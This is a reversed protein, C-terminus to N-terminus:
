YGLKTSTATQFQRFRLGEIAHSARIKGKEERYEAAWRGSPAKSKRLRTGCTHMRFACEDYNAGNNKGVERSTNHRQEDYFYSHKILSLAGRHNSIVKPTLNTALM